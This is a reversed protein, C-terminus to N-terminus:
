RGRGEAQEFLLRAADGPQTRIFEVKKVNLGGSRQVLTAFEVNDDEWTVYSVMDGDRQGGSKTIKVAWGV